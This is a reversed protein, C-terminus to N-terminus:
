YPIRQLIMQRKQNSYIMTIDGRAILEVINILGRGWFWELENRNMRRVMRIGLIHYYTTFPITLFFGYKALNFDFVVWSLANRQDEEQDIGILEFWQRWQEPIPNYIPINNPYVLSGSQPATEGYFEALKTPEGNLGTTQIWTNNIYIWLNLTIDVLEINNPTPLGLINLIPAPPKFTTWNSGNWTWFDEDADLMVISTPTPSGYVFNATASTPSNPLVPNNTLKEWSNQYYIYLDGWENLAVLVMSETSPEGKLGLQYNTEPYNTDTLYGNKYTYLKGDQQQIIISQSTPSGLIGNYQDTIIDTIKYWSNGDFIWVYRDTDIIVISNTTSDGYIAYGFNNLLGDTPNLPYENNNHINNDSINNDSGVYYVVNPHTSSSANSGSQETWISGNYTWLNHASDIMVISKPTPTGFINYKGNNTDFSVANPKNPNNPDTQQVWGLQNRIDNTYMTYTKTDILIVFNNTSTSLIVYSEIISPINTSNWSIEAQVAQTIQINSEESEGQFLWLKHNDNYDTMVISNLSTTSWLTGEQTPQGFGGTLSIGSEIKPLFTAVGLSAPTYNKPVFYSENLLSNAAIQKFAEIGTNTGVFVISNITDITIANPTANTSIGAISTFSVSNTVSYINVLSKGGEAIYATNGGNGIAIGCPASEKDTVITNNFTLVANTSNFNYTSISKNNKNTVYLYKNDPSFAIASTDYATYTIPNVPSSSLSGDHNIKYAYIGSNSNNASSEVFILLYQLNPSVAISKVSLSSEVFTETYIGSENLTLISGETTAIYTSLTSENFAIGSTTYSGTPISEIFNLSETSIQYIDIKKNIADASFLYNQTSIDSVLSKIINRSNIANTTNTTADSSGGNCASIFISLVIVWFYLKTDQLINQM